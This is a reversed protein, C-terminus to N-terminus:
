NSSEEIVKGIIRDKKIAGYYRSDKSLDPNDGVVFYEDDKLSVGNVLTDDATINSFIYKENLPKSNNLISGNKIQILENPLGVVRKIHIVKDDIYFVIIDGRKVSKKKFYDEDILLKTKDKITPLMSNGSYTIEKYESFSCGGLFIAMCFYIFLKRMIFGGRRKLIPFQPNM